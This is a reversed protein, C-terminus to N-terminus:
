RSAAAEQPRDSLDKECVNKSTSEKGINPLLKSTKTIRYHKAHVIETSAGVMNMSKFRTERGHHVQLNHEDLEKEIETEVEQKTILPFPSSTEYQLMHEEIKIDDSCYSDSLSDETYNSQFTCEELESKIQVNVQQKRSNGDKDCILVNQTGKISDESLEM